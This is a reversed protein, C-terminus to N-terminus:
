FMRDGAKNCFYLFFTFVCSRFHSAMLLQLNPNILFIVFPTLSIPVEISYITIFWYNNRFTKESIYPLLAKLM